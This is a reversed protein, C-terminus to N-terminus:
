FRARMRAGAGDIGLAVAGREGSHKVDYFWLVATTGVLAVSVFTLATSARALARGQDRDSEFPIDGCQGDTGCRQELDGHLHHARIGTGLAVAGAVLAAGGAVFTPWRPPWIRRAPALSQPDGEVAPLAAEGYMATPPASAPPPPSDRLKSRMADMRATAEERYSTDPHQRLLLELDALAAELQGGREHARSLNILMEPRRSLEYALAFEREADTWREAAFHSEGAVFHAKAREDDLSEQARAPLALACVVCVFLSGLFCLRLAHRM